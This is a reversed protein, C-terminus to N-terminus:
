KGGFLRRIMAMINTMFGSSTATSSPENIEVDPTAGPSSTTTTTTDTPVVKPPPSPLWPPTPFAPICPGQSNDLCAAREVEIMEEQGGIVEGSKIVFGFQTWYQAMAEYGTNNYQNDLNLYDSLSDAKEPIGVAMGRFWDDTFFQYGGIPEPGPKVTVVIDPRQAAWFDGSCSWFDGHWPVSMYGSVTGPEIPFSTAPKGEPQYKIQDAFRFPGAFYEPFEMYYTLEIGPHFGGGVTPELAAFDMSKPMPLTAAPAKSLFSGNVWHQFKDLQHRTLSLWQNPFDTGNFLNEDRSGGDGVLHPMLSGRPERSTVYTVGEPLPNPPPPLNPTLEGPRRLAQFIRLRGLNNDYSPSALGVDQEVGDKVLGKLFDGNRFPRHGNYAPMNVWAYETVTRLIPYIDRYFSVTEFAAVAPAAAAIQESTSKLRFSSFEFDPGGIGLYATGHTTTNNDVGRMAYYFKGNFSTISPGTSALCDELKEFNFDFSANPDPVDPNTYNNIVAFNNWKALYCGEDMGTFAYYLEGDFYHISPSHASGEVGTQGVSSFLFASNNVGQAQTGLYHKNDVGTIALYLYGNYTALAPSVATPPPPTALGGSQATVADFSTFTTGDSSTSLYLSKDTGTVAYILTGNFATLAPGVNTAQSGIKASTFTTGDASTALYNDSGSTYAIYFKGAFAVTSPAGVVPKNIGAITTFKLDDAVPKKNTAIELEGTKNLIIFNFTGGYPDIEPFMNIQLDLLSVVNRMQPVYKPPGVGVWGRKLPDGWPFTAKDPRTSFTQATGGPPTYTVTANIAGGCTDDYWGPNNFYSNGNSSPNLNQDTKNPGFYGIGKAIITPPETLCGAEGAGGIFILRGADDTELRGLNVNKSKYTVLTNGKVGPTILSIPIEAQGIGDFIDGALDKAGKGPTQNIGSITQPGPDIVLADRKSGTVGPNRFATPDFAYKGQFAHNAAKKNVVDVDWSLEIGNAPDHTIEMVLNDQADYGFVRFRAAQRKIRGQSDKYKDNGPNPVVGYEEPGIFYDPSNGVRAMGIGPSVKIHTVQNISM